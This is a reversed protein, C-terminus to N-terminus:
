CGQSGIALGPDGLPHTTSDFFYVECDTLESQLRNKTAIIEASGIAPFISIAIKRPPSNRGLRSNDYQRWQKMADLIHQDHEKTLRSGFVVLPGRHFTFKWYAFSLYDNRRISRLKDKSVGESVFLPIWEGAVDFQTLLDAGDAQFVKKKTNGRLDHYLHLAGHLYLVRTGGNNWEHADSSDFSQDAGWFFDKCKYEDKTEMIAWYPLLDYNTTYLYKYWSFIGGLQRKIEVPVNEFPIHIARVAEILSTRISQYREDVDGFEKRLHGCVMRTTALASLVAEFNVTDMETFFAQDVRTLPHTRQPDCAVQYLSPYAFNKWLAQSAGNGLLLGLDPQHRFSERITPWRPLADTVSTLPM